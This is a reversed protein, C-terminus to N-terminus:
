PKVEIVVRRQAAESLEAQPESEGVGRTHIADPRVGQQALYNGAAQARRESLAQNYAASGVTDTHGVLEVQGTLTQELWQTVENLRAQSAQTLEASDFAFTIASFTPVVAKVEAMPPTITSPATEKVVPAAVIPATSVPNVRGFRYQVGLSTFHGQSHSVDALYQYEARLSWRPSLAYEAGLAGEASWNNHNDLVFSAERRIDLYSAGVRLYASVDQWLPQSWKLSLGYGTVDSTVINSAYQARYDQYDTASLELAWQPTFQFGGLLGYGLNDNNCTQYHSYCSEVMLAYGARAGLYAHPTFNDAPEDAWAIRPAAVLLPWLMFSLYRM